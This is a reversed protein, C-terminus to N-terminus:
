QAAKLHTVAEMAAKKALDAHGMKGHESASQLSKLGADLHEDAVKAHETAAAAHETVAAAEAAQARQLAAVYTTIREQEAAQAAAEAAANDADLKAQTAKIMADQLGQQYSASTSSAGMAPVVTGATLQASAEQATVAAATLGIGAVVATTVAAPVISRKSITM